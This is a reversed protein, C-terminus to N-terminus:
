KRCVNGPNQKILEKMVRWLAAEKDLVEKSLVKKM